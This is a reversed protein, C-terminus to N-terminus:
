GSLITWRSASSTASGNRWSIDWHTYRDVIIAVGVERNYLVFAKGEDAVAVLSCRLSFVQTVAANALDDDAIAVIGVFIRGARVSKADDGDSFSCGPTVNYEQEHGVLVLGQKIETSRSTVPSAKGRARDIALPMPAVRPPAICDDARSSAASSRKLSCATHGVMM